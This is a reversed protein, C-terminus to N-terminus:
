SLLRRVFALIGAAAPDDPDAYRDKITGHDRGPVVLIEIDFEHKKCVAAMLANEEVRAAMDDGGVLLFMPMKVDHAYFLPADEDITPREIPIGKDKRITFHTLMQGSTPISGTIETIHHGFKSLHRDDLCTIATLYGGASHGTVFLRTPDGGYEAINEITWAVAAAADENYAPYKAQPSVRYEATVVGFGEAIMREVFPDGEGRGGGELGGGHFYVFVPYNDNEPRHVYVTCKQAAYDDPPTQYYCIDQAVLM